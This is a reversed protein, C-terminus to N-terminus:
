LKGARLLHDAIFGGCPLGVLSEQIQPLARIGVSEDVLLGFRLVGVESFSHCMNWPAPRRMAPFSQTPRYALWAKMLLKYRKPCNTSSGRLRVSERASEGM